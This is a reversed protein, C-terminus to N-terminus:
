TFTWQSAASRSSALASAAAAATPVASGCRRSGRTSAAESGSPASTSSGSAPSRRSPRGIASSPARAARARRRARSAARRGAAAPAASRGARRRRPEREGGVDDAARPGSQRSAASRRSPRSPSRSRRRALGTWRCPSALRRLASSSPPRTPSTSRSSAVAPGPRRRGRSRARRAARPAPAPGARRPAAPRARRRAAARSRRPRARDRLGLRQAPVGGRRHERADRHGGDAAHPGHASARRPAAAARRPSSTAHAVARRQEAVALVRDAEAVQDAGVRQARRQRLAEADHQQAAPREGFPDARRGAHLHQRQRREADPRRAAEDAVVRAVRELPTPPARALPDERREAGHPRDGHEDLQEREPARLERALEHRQELRRARVAREGRAAHAVDEDARAGVLLGVVVAGRRERVLVEVGHEHVAIGRKARSSSVNAGRAAAARARDVVRAEDDAVARRPPAPARRGRRPTPRRRARRRAAAARRRRPAARRDAHRHPQDAPRQQGVGRPPAQARERARLDLQPARDLVEAGLQAAGARRHALAAVVGRELDQAGADGPQDHGVRRRLLVLLALARPPELPEARHAHQRRLPELAGREGGLQPPQEANSGRAALTSRSPARRLPRRSASSTAPEVPPSPPGRMVEAPRMSRGCTTRRQFASAPAPPAVTASVAASRALGHGSASTTSRRSAWRSAGNVSSAPSARSSATTAATTSAIAITSAAACYAESRHSCAAPSRM